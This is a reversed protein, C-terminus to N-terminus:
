PQLRQLSRRPTRNAALRCYQMRQELRKHQIWRQHLSPRDFRRLQNQEIMHHQEGM